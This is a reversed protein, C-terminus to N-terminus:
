WKIEEPIVLDLAFSNIPTDSVNLFFDFYNQQIPHLKNALNLGMSSFHEKPVTAIRRINSSIWYSDNPDNM